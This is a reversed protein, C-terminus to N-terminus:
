YTSIIDALLRSVFCFLCKEFHNCEMRFVKEQLFDLKDTYELWNRDPMSRMRELIEIIQSHSIANCDFHCLCLPVNLPNM